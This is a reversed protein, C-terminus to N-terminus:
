VVVATAHSTSGEVELSAQLEVGIGRICRLHRPRKGFPLDDFCSLGGFHLTLWIAAWAGASTVSTPWARHVKTFHMYTVQFDMELHSSESPQLALLNRTGPRFGSPAIHPIMHHFHRLQQKNKKCSMRGASRPHDRIIKSSRPHHNSIIHINDSHGKLLSKTAMILQGTFAWESRLSSTAVLVWAPALFATKAPGEVFPPDWFPDFRITWLPFIPFIGCFYPHNPTIGM